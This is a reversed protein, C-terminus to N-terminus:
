LTKNQMYLFQPTGPASEHLLIHQVLNKLLAIRNHKILMMDAPFKGVRRGSFLGQESLIAVNLELRKTALL